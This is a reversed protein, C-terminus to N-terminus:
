FQDIYSFAPYPWSAKLCDYIRTVLVDDAAHVGVYDKGAASTELRFLIDPDDIDPGDEDPSWAVLHAIGQRTFRLQNHEDMYLQLTKLIADHESQTKATAMCLCYAGGAGSMLPCIQGFLASGEAAASRKRPRYWYGFRNSHDPKFDCVPRALQGTGPDAHRVEKCKKPHGLTPPDDLFSKM